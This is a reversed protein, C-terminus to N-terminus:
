KTNGPKHSVAADRHANREERPEQVGSVWRWALAPWLAVVGPLILLRFGWTGEKAVPDIRSVGAFIFAIAFVLGAGLYVAAVRVILIAIAETM